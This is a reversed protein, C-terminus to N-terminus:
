RGREVERVAIAELRRRDRLDCRVRVDGRARDVVVELRLVVDRRCDELGNLALVALQQTPPSLEGVRTIAEEGEDVIVGAIAPLHAREAAWYPRHDRVQRLLAVVNRSVSSRH